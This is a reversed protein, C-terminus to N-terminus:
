DDHWRQSQRRGRHSRELHHDDDDSEFVQDDFEVARRDNRGLIGPWDLRRAVFDSLDAVFKQNMITAPLTGHILLLWVIRLAVTNTITPRDPHSATLRGTLLENTVAVILPASVVARLDVDREGRAVAIAVQVIAAVTERVDNGDHTTLSQLVSWYRANWNVLYLARHYARPIASSTTASKAKLRLIAATCSIIRRALSLEARLIDDTRLLEAQQQAITAMVVAASTCDPDLALARKAAVYAQTNQSGCLRTRADLALQRADIVNSHLKGPDFEAVIRGRETEIRIPIGALRLFRRLGCINHRFDRRPDGATPTGGTLKIKFRPLLLFDVCSLRRDHRLLAELLRVHLDNPLEAPELDIRALTNTAFDISTHAKRAEPEISQTATEIRQRNRALTALADNALQQLEALMAAVDQRKADVHSESPVATRTRAVVDARWSDLSTAITNM